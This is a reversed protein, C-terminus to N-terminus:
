LKYFEGEAIKEFGRPGITYKIQRAAYLQSRINFKKDVALLRNTIFQFVYQAAMPITTKEKYFTRYFNIIYDDAIDFLSMDYPNGPPFGVNIYYQRRTTPVNGNFYTNYSTSYSAVAIATLMYFSWDWLERQNDHVECECLYSIPMKELYGKTSPTEGNDILEQINERGEILSETGIATPALAEILLTLDRYDDNWYGELADTINKTDIPVTPVLKMIAKETGNPSESARFYDVVYGDINGNHLFPSSVKNGKATYAFVYPNQTETLKSAPYIPVAAFDNGLYWKGFDSYSIDYQRAKDADAVEAEADVDRSFEDVVEAVDEITDPSDAAFYRDRLLISAHGNNIIVVCNFVIQLQEIFEVFTLKPLIDAILYVETSNAIFANEFLPLERLEFKDITIGVGNFVKEIMYWLRPQPALRTPLILNSAYDGSEFEHLILHGNLLALCNMLEETESNFVPSVSVMGNTHEYICNAEWFTKGDETTALDTKIYLYNPTYGTSKLFGWQEVTGLDLENIYLSEYKAKWNLESNGQLLQISVNDNDTGVIIATGNLIVRNDVILQASMPTSRVTKDPRYCNEFIKANQSYPACSLKVDYTYTSAKSFAVNETILTIKFDTPLDCEMGNIFLQTM